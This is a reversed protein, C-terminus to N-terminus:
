VQITIIMAIKEAKNIKNSGKKFPFAKSLKFIKFVMKNMEMKHLHKAVIQYNTAIIKGM